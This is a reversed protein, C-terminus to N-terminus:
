QGAGKRRIADQMDEITVGRRGPTISGCLSLLDVTEAQVTVSGNAHVYFAVRDGSRVGLADRVVKPITVQGKTTMTSAPV